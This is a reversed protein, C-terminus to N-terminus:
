RIRAAAAAEPRAREWIAVSRFGRILAESNRKPGITLLPGALLRISPARNRAVRGALERQSPIRGISWIARSWVVMPHVEDGLDSAVTWYLGRSLTIMM